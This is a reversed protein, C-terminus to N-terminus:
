APVVARMYRGLSTQYVWPRTKRVLLLLVLNRLGSGWHAWIRKCRHAVMGMIREIGNSTSPMWIGWVALEAFVVVSRGENRLLQAARLHGAEQLQGALLGMEALTEKVRRAIAERDGDETHKKVSARLHGLTGRLRRTWRERETPPLLTGSPGVLASDVQRVFHLICGQYAWCAITLLSPDRDSVLLEVREGDLVKAAAGDVEVNVFECRHTEPDQRIAVHVAHQGGRKQSRVFTSDPQHVGGSSRPPMAQHIEEVRSALEQVIGWITPFPVRVGLAMELSRQAERYTTRTAEEAAAM